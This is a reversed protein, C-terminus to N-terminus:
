EGKDAFVDAIAEDVSAGYGDLQRVAARVKADFEDAPVGQAALMARLGRYLALLWSAYRIIEVTTM